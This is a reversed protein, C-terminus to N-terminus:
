RTVGQSRAAQGTRILEEVEDLYCLDGPSDMPLCWYARAAPETLHVAPVGLFKDRGVCGVGPFERDNWRWGTSGPVLACYLLAHLDMFVAGGDFWRRLFADVEKLEQTKAAAWVLGAPIRVAAFISGCALLAIEQEVWQARAHDRDDAAGLLWHSVALQREPLTTLNKGETVETGTEAGTM